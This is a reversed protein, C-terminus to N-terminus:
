ECVLRASLKEALDKRSVVGSLPAKLSYDLVWNMRTEDIFDRTFTGVSVPDPYDVEACVPCYGEFQLLPMSRTTPSQPDLGTLLWRPNGDTDYIFQSFAQATKNVVVSAGGVGTLEPSWLGAYSDDGTTSPPCSRAATPEMRDSGNKGHLVFSFVQDLKSLATVSVYGVPTFQQSIGNNTYRDLRAVWVDGTPAAGAALYWTSNGEEDYTYWSLTRSGGFDAYNYGQRTNLRQGQSGLRSNIDWFGPRFASAAASFEVDAKITVGTISNAGNKIVAYWRGASLPSGSITVSPGNSSDGQGSAVPTGSIDPKSALPADAFAVDFGVRYMELKLEANRAANVADVQVTLSDAGAPIDIFVRDHLGTADIVTGRSIGNMLVLTEPESVGFVNFSVPVVGINNAKDRETGIGVAGYLFQGPTATVNDWAVRIATQAGSAVMGSGTATLPSESNESVVASRLTVLDPDNTATWNQAILWYDGEVPNFLDCFEFSGPSTSTCIEEEEEALGNRNIDLGVFLDIDEATSDLTSAHLWLTGAPVTVFKTLLGESNDYPSEYSPDQPLSASTDTPVVLGGSTFTADPMVALDDLTFEKWGSVQDSSISWEAPLQGGDAFVAVTFISDPLGSSSLHIEGYVWSGIIESNGLNITVEITRSGGSSLVFSSPDSTVVVGEPFGEASVVWNAGGVLDTVTRSFV